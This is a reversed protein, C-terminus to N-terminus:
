PAKAAVIRWSLGVAEVELVLAGKKQNRIRRGLEPPLMALVAEAAPGETNAQKGDPLRASLERKGPNWVVEVRASLRQPAAGAGSARSGKAGGVVSMQGFGSRTWAGFGM